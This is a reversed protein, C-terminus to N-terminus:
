SEEEAQRISGKGLLMGHWPTGGWLELPGVLKKHDLKGSGRLISKRVDYRYWGVTIKLSNVKM